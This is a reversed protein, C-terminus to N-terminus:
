WGFEEGHWFVDRGKWVWRGVESRVSAGMGSPGCVLVAVRDRGNYSFVEDVMSRFDPRGKQMTKAARSVANESSPSDDLLRDREQLEISDNVEAEPKSQKRRASYESDLGDVDSQTAYAHFGEPLTGCAELLQNIGWRADAVQRVSWVFKVCPMQEGRAGRHLLDLYLPLTFTAGVGGAVFLVRDYTALDPFYSAAGYPGELTLSTTKQKAAYDALMATTGSLTRAVLEIKKDDHPDRNAISFPNIRLKQPLSPFGLYIHQGPAYTKSSLTKTLPVTIALLNTSPVLEITAEATTQSVNRQLIIILYIAASEIIYLRIHSVHFFLIPLLSASLVVHLYFFLRYNWTRIMALATTGILMFTTIAMLGLIVDRDQIRKLLLNLQIYFNLYMAAHVSFFAILIRGLLRHYPNLEEHSMRTLYQIPSWSKAALLYHLPLQSAAVIGFRRTLHLYDGGTDKFVLVLLWITWLGAILWEQRTNWGELLEGDLFWRIRALINTTYGRTPRKFSSVVPSQHEKLAQTNSTWRRSTLLRIGLCLQYILPLLLISLQAFRGYGDLLQRRRLDQEDNLSVFHYPLGMEM